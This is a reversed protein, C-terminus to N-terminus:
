SIYTHMCTISLSLLNIASNFQSAGITLDAKQEWLLLDEFLDSRLDGSMAVVPNSPDFWAGHIENMMHQPVGAKQPLGDHNQQVWRHLMGKRFM